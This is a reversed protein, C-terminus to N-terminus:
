QVAVLSWITTLMFLRKWVMSILDPLGPPWGASLHDSEKMRGEFCARTGCGVCACVTPPRTQEVRCRTPASPKNELCGHTNSRYPFLKIELYISSLRTRLREQAQNKDSCSEAKETGVGRFIELGINALQFISVIELGTVACNAHPLQAQVSEKDWVCIIVKIVHVETNHHCELAHILLSSRCAM